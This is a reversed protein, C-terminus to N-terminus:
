QRNRSLFPRLIRLFIAKSPPAAALGLFGL